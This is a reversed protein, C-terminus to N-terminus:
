SETPASGGQVLLDEPGARVKGSDAWKGTNIYTVHNNVGPHLACLGIRSGCPVELFSLACDDMRHRVPRWNTPPQARVSHVRYRIIVGPLRVVLCSHRQHKLFDISANPILETYGKGHPAATHSDVGAMRHSSSMQVPHQLLAARCRSMDDIVEKLLPAEATGALSALGPVKGAGMYTCGQQVKLSFCLWSLAISTSLVAHLM